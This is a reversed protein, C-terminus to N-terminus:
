FFKCNSNLHSLWEPLQKPKFSLSRNSKFSSRVASSSTELSKCTFSLPSFFVFLFSLLFLSLSFCSPKTNLLQLHALTASLRQHGNVLEEFHVRKPLCNGRSPVRSNYVWPQDMREGEWCGFGLLQSVSSQLDRSVGSSLLWPERPPRMLSEESVRTCNM